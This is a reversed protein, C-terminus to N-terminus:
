RKQELEDLGTKAEVHEMVAKADKIMKVRTLEQTFSPGFSEDHGQQEHFTGTVDKPARGKKPLCQVTKYGADGVEARHQDLPIQQRHDDRFRQSRTGPQGLNPEMRSNNEDQAKQEEYAHSSPQEVHRFHSGDLPVHRPHVGEEGGGTGRAHCSEHTHVGHGVEGGFSVPHQQKENLQAPQIEDGKAGKECQNGFKAHRDLLM